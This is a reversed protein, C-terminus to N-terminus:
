SIPFVVECGLEIIAPIIPYIFFGLLCVAIWFLPMIHLLLPMVILVM